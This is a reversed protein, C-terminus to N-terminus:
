PLSAIVPGVLSADSTEIDYVAGAHEYWYSTISEEAAVGKTVTEGGISVSSTTLDPYDTKWADVMAGRLSAPAIGNAEFIGVLLDYTGSQDYAQAIQLDAPSKKNKALFASMATSWTDEGLITAGTWSQKTLPSEKWADPLLAELAPADHSAAVPPTSPTVALDTPAPSAALGTPAPATPRNALMVAVTTWGATAVILAVIALAPWFGASGSRSPAEWEEERARARRAQVGRQRM